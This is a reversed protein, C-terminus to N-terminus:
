EKSMIMKKYLSDVKIYISAQSFNKKSILRANTGMHAMKEKDGIMEILAKKIAGSDRSPVLIGNVGSQIVEPNGGVNTAIIPLGVSAAELLSNSLNEHLTPFLFIDSGHLIELVDKREGLFFIKKSKVESHFESKFEEFHEGNGCIIFKLNNYELEKFANLAYNLGKEKTVRGTYVVLIDQDSLGLEDKIATKRYLDSDIEPAANHIVGGFNKVNKTMLSKNSMETSVTYVIKAMRLTAPEIIRGFIWKSIPSFNIMDTSSGRVVILINKYGAIRSALTAYFGQLQLGSLHILDPNYEKIEKRLNNLLKFRIKKGLPEDIVIEKFDYNEKLYSDMLLRMARTPGGIKSPYYIFVLIKPKENKM